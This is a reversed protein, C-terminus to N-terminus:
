HDALAVDGKLASRRARFDGLVALPGAARAWSASGFSVPEPEGFHAGPTQPILGRRM